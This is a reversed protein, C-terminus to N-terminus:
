IIHLLNYTAVVKIKYQSLPITSFTKEIKGGNQLDETSLEQKAIEKGDVDTLVINANKITKDEDNLLFSVKINNQEADEEMILDTVTPKKKIINIIVKNNNQLSFIKGNSLAIEEIVIEHTGFETVGDITVIYINDQKTVEYEKGM